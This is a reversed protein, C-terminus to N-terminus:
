GRLCGPLSYPTSILRSDRRKKQTTLDQAVGAIPCLPSLFVPPPGHFVLGWDVALAETLFYKHYRVVLFAM